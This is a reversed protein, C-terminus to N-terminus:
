NFRGDDKKVEIANNKLIIYTGMSKAVLRGDEDIITVDGVVTERERDIIKAEATIEGKNFSSVYNIKMEITTFREDRETLGILAMAFASDALSFIAGGHVAGYPQVIKESYPLKLKAWGKKIDVLKIGLMTWYTQVTEVKEMLAHKFKSPLDEYEKL